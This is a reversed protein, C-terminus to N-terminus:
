SVMEDALKGAIWGVLWSALWSNLRGYVWGVLRLGFSVSGSHHCKQYM